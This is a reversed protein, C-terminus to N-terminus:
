GGLDEPRDVDGPRGLDDCPVLRAPLTRLGEDPVGDWRSPGLVVPHGRDGGYSAAVIEDGRTWEDLVREIAAPSLEPGDALVVVAADVDNGLAAIGRRLSAGPGLLWEPCEVLRTPVGLDVPLELDHAGSVVVIEDVPAVRLRELVLPLLLQQKPGGFRSGEGAALVIAAVKGM